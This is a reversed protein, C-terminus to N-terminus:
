MWRAGRRGFSSAAVSPLGFFPQLWAPLLHQYFAHMVDFGGYSMEPVASADVEAFGGASFLRTCPPSHFWENSRRCDCVLRQGGAKKKVFFIGVKERIKRKLGFVGRALGDKIFSIYKEKNCKLVEDMYARPAAGPGRRVAKVEAAPRVWNLQTGEFQHRLDRPLHRALNLASRGVEPWSVQGRAFPVTNSCEGSEYYLSVDHGLLERIAEDPRLGPLPPQCAHLHRVRDRVMSSFPDLCGDSVVHSPAGALLNLCEMTDCVREELRFRKHIRQATGRSLRRSADVAALAPVQVMGDVHQQSGSRIVQDTM